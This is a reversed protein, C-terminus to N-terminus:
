DETAMWRNMLTAVKSPEAKILESIQSLMKNRELDQEGVEIGPMANEGEDAEGVLDDHSQLATPVGVLEEASPLEVKKTSRRVMMAMMALAVVALGGLVATDVLGGDLGLSGGGEGGTILGLVGGGGAQAPGSVMTTTPIMSVQVEGDLLVNNQDRTKLHPLLSAEIQTKMEAFRARITEQTPNEPEGDETQDSDQRVLDAVYSEPVNVSAALFTPMGRPDVLDRVTTGIANEFETDTEEQETGKASSAPATNIDAGQMSRVGPEAGVAAGGQALSSSSESRLLSVTGENEKLHSRTQESVRTVDVQATVAVIVGPIYSLLSELKRKTDV